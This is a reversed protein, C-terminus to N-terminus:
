EARAEAANAFYVGANKPDIGSLQAAILNLWTNANELSLWAHPDHM